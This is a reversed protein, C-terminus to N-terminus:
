EVDGTVERRLCGIRRGRRTTGDEDTAARILVLSLCAMSLVVINELVLEM